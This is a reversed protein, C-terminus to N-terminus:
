PREPVSGVSGALSLAISPCPAEPSVRRFYLLFSVHVSACCCVFLFPTAAMMSGCRTSANRTGREKKAGSSRGSDRQQRANWRGIHALRRFVTGEMVISTRGVSRYQHACWSPRCEGGVKQVNACLRGSVVFCSSFKRNTYQTLRERVRFKVAPISVASPRWWTCM